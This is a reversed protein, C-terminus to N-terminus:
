RSAIREIEAVTAAFSRSGDAAVISIEKPRVPEKSGNVTEFKVDCGDKDSSFEVTLGVTAGYLEVQSGEKITIACFRLNGPVTLRHRLEASMSSADISLTERYRPGVKTQIQRSHAEFHGPMKYLQINAVPNLGIIIQSDAEDFKLVIDDKKFVYIREQFSPTVATHGGSNLGDRIKNFVSM